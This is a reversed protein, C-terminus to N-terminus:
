RREKASVWNPAATQVGPLQQVQTSLALAANGPITGLLWYGTVPSASLTVGNQSAWSRLTAEDNTQVVVGGAPILWPSNTTKGQRLVPLLNEQTDAILRSRATDTRYFRIGKEQKNLTLQTVATKGMTARTSSDIVASRTIGNEKWTFVQDSALLPRTSLLLLSALLIKKM